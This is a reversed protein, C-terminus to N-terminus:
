AVFCLLVYSNRFWYQLLCYVVSCYTGMMAIAPANNEATNDGFINRVNQATLEFQSWNKESWYQPWFETSCLSLTGISHGINSGISQLLVSNLLTVALMATYAERM